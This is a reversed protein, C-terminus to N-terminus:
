FGPFLEGKHMEMEDLYEIQSDDNDNTSLKDEKFKFRKCIDFHLVYCPLICDEEFIVIEKGYPDVHCDYGPEKAEGLKLKECQFSKGKLVQCMLLKSTRQMYNMAFRPYESFYIGNGYWGVDTTEDFYPHDPQRFGEKCISQINEESTGHFGLVPLGYSADKSSMRDKAARFRKVQVPNVVYEVKTLQFIHRNVSDKMLYRYFQSEVLRFHYNDPTMSFPPEPRLEFHKVENGGLAKKEGPVYCAESVLDKQSVLHGAVLHTDGTVSARSGDAKVIHKAMNMRHKSEEVQSELIKRIAEHKYHVVVSVVELSTKAPTNVFDVVAKMMLRVSTEPPYGAYGTGLVPFAISKFNQRSAEQLCTTVVSLFSRETKNNEKAWEVLVTHFVKKCGLKGAQTQVVAGPEVGRPHQQTCETQLVPGGASVLSSSVAGVSLDLDTQTTNVVVDDTVKSLDGVITRVTLVKSTGLQKRLVVEKNITNEHVVPRKGMRGEFDKEAADNPNMWQKLVVHFLRQCQFPWGKTPAVGGVQLGAPFAKTLVEQLDQGGTKPFTVSGPLFKVDTSIISVIVDVKEQSINGVTLEVAGSKRLLGMKPVSVTSMGCAQAASVQLATQKTGSFPKGVAPCVLSDSSELVNKPDEKLRFRKCINFHVIYCPLIVDEKHLVLAKNSSYVLSYPEHKDTGSATNQGKGSLMKCILLMNSREMSDMAFRPYESATVTKRIFQQQLGEQCIIKITEKGAGCFFLVAQQKPMWAQAASFVKMLNPNVVYELKTIQFIHRNVKDRSLCRYFQSEILRYHYDDLTPTHRNGSKLEIYTVDNGSMVEKKCIVDAACRLLDKQAVLQGSVLHIDEGVPVQAGDATIIFKAMGALRVAEGLQTEVIKIIATDKPHIVIDLVQLSTYATNQFVDVFARIMLKTSMEASFGAYGTGLLPFGISTFKQRSAKQLCTTVVSLFAKEAKEHGKRWDELIVHYIKKCKLKGGQTQTVTGPRAGLPHQQRCEDQIIQGGADLLSGSVAGVSLNLDIQTTNVLVDAELQTLDGCIARITLEKTGAAKKLVVEKSVRHKHVVLVGDRRAEFDKRLVDNGPYLVFTVTRLNTNKNQLFTETATFMIDASRMSPFRHFGSGLAPFTISRLNQKSAMELCETVVNRLIQEAEDHKNVWPKLVVHFVKLCQLKRGATQAIGGVKLGSPCAKTLDEQLERGGAELFTYSVTGALLNVDTGTTNVLVDAQQKAIEGVVLHIQSNKYM